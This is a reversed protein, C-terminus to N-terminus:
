KKRVVIDARGENLARLKAEGLSKVVSAKIVYEGDDLAGYGDDPGKPDKGILKDKTVKGGKSWMGADNDGTDLGGGSIGPGDDDDSSNPGFTAEDSAAITAPSSFSFTNGNPDSVAVQGPNNEANIAAVNNAAEGMADAQQGAIASGIANAALGNLGFAPVGMLGLGISAATNSVGQGPGTSSPSAPASEGDGAVPVRMIERLVRSADSGQGSRISNTYAVLAQQKQLSPLSILKGYLYPDTAQLVAAADNIASAQDSSNAIRAYYSNLMNNM